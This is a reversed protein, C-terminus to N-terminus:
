NDSPLELGANFALRFRDMEGKKLVLGIEIGGEEGSEAMSIAGNENISVVEVKEPSGWGFDTEYVRFKPSGAVSLPRQAVVEVLKELWEEAERLVGGGLGEVAKALAEGAVRVGGEGAVEGANAEAFCVGVCNGFYGAPIQPELRRRCDVAFAAHATRERAWGRSRVLSTWAHACAVVFTSSRFGMTQKLKEVHDRGLTFTECVLDDDEDSNVPTEPAAAKLAMITQYFLPGLNKPDVIMSRDYVPPISVVPATGGARCTAAWSKMFNMSTTGDCAVHNITVGFCLGQNPFVTVQIAMLPGTEDSILKLDPALALLTKFSRAQNGYLAQFDGDSETVLLSVSDGDSYYLEFEDESIPSRRFQGSLPFFSQLTLSLSTKLIPLQHKIFHSTSHPFSYFFLRKVPGYFLWLIDFFTFPISTTPVSGPPPSIHSHELVTLTQQISSSAM